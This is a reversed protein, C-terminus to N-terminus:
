RIAKGAKPRGPRKLGIDLDALASFAESAMLRLKEEMKADLGLNKMIKALAQSYDRSAKANARNWDVDKFLAACEGCFPLRGLAMLVAIVPYGPYGQWYTASDDSQFINDAWRLHYTKQGNSSKVEAEGREKDGRISVRGSSLASWAEFIKEPPPMKSLM